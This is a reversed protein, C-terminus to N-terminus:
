ETIIKVGAEELHKWYDPYSKSVVEMNAITIGPYRLAALSMSMAMRHDDYTAIVPMEMAPMKRGDWEIAFNDTVSLEYGLKGLETRLAEIRDTEKIKLTTLGGISFPVDLLCAAVVMTQALDPQDSLNCEFRDVMKHGGSLQLGEDTFEAKVGFDEFLQCVRSDGQVSNDSLGKLVIRSQPMLAAIAFWYSAASWDSEVVFHRPACYCGPAVDITCNRRSCVAGFQRMLALTMDIYPVSLMHGTLHIALGSSLTPAIMLLSSIYQSSVSGPINLTPSYALRRGSIKLPPFGEEGAYEIEAGCSRLAEVLIGIPRHRMRESGDILTERGDLSAFYGTLFRMATGAAGINVMGTRDSLAALMSRTDDCQAVNDIACSGGSLANLILVRNSISKSAPLQVTYNTTAPFELKCNM